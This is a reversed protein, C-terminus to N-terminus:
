FPGPVPQWNGHSAAPYGGFTFWLQRSLSNYLNAYVTGYNERHQEVNPDALIAILDKLQPNRPLRGLKTAMAEARLLSSQNAALPDKMEPIFQYHNTGVLFGSDLDCRAVQHCSCELIAARGDPSASFILMGGQRNDSRLRAEVADIDECTELIDTLLVFPTWAHADPQDLAPLWNYHLWLGSSNVGTAAYLEGRIGFTVTGLRGIVQRQIAYGWVDPVWLDNNRGVWLGDGTRLLFASCGTKRRLRCLGM